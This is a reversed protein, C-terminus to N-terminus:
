PAGEGQPLTFRFTAGQGPESEVWIRGGHREVIKKCIALGIGTGPYQRRSGLRQFIVFLGQAEAPDIGIGNDRVSFVWEGDSAEAGVHVQPVGDGRFKIANGILNQLLQMLQVPDGLVSPLPDHTVTAGTERVAAHLNALAQRLVVSCDVRAFEKRHTGVRSYALLDNILHQMRAAGDVAYGIFDQADSDLADRYRRELLQLYSTVMRLPEQLDHSAVYAFQELDRNSRALEAATRKLAEEAETRATVDWFIGQTGIIKGWSDYVPSKIVEVFLRRGGPEHHQEVDEFVRATEVVRRDDQRYKEALEPPYFDFDTQGVIKGLPKGVTECFVKNGFTFRGDLDKRYINLPLTEVLSHYLAESNSRFLM